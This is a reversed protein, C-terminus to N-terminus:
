KFTSSPNGSSPNSLDLSLNKHTSILEDESVINLNYLKRINRIFSVSSIHEETVVNTNVDRFYVTSFNRDFLIKDNPASMENSSSIYIYNDPIDIHRDDNYYKSRRGLEVSYDCNADKVDIYWGHAFDDVEVEFSYHLTDNKVILVPKTNTLFDEGYQKKFKEVMEDSMDWYAFLRTPTQALVKVVTQNYRYPLDYHELIAFTPKTINVTNNITEKKVNKSAITKKSKTSNKEKSSSGKKASTNNKSTLIKKDNKKLASVKKASKSKKIQDNKEKSPM